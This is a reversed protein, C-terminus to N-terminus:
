AGHRRMGRRGFVAGDHALGLLLRAVALLFSMWGLPAAWPIADGLMLLWAPVSLLSSWPVAARPQVRADQAPQRSEYGWVLLVALLLFLVAPQWSPRGSLTLVLWPGFLNVSREVARPLRRAPIILAVGVLIAVMVLPGWTAVTDHLRRHEDWGLLNAIGDRMYLGPNTLIARGADSAGRYAAFLLGGVICGIQAASVVAILCSKTRHRSPNEM